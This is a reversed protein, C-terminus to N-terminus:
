ELRRQKRDDVHSNIENNVEDRLHINADYASTNGTLNGRLCHLCWLRLYNYVLM